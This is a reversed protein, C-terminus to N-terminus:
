KLLMRFCTKRNIIRTNIHETDRILLDNELNFRYLLIFCYLYIVFFAFRLISVIVLALIDDNLEKEQKDITRQNKNMM